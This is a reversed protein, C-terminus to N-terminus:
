RVNEGLILSGISTNDAFAFEGIEVVPYGDIM